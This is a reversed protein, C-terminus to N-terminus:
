TMVNPRGSRTRTGRPAVPRGNPEVPNGHKVHRHFAPVDRQRDAVHALHHPISDRLELAPGSVRRTTRHLANSLGRLVHTRGRGAGDVRSLIGPRVHVGARNTRGSIPTTDLLLRDRSDRTLERDTTLQTSGRAAITRDDDARPQSLD